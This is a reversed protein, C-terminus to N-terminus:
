PQIREPHPVWNDPLSLQPSTNNLIGSALRRAFEPIFLLGKSGFGGLVFCSPLGPVAGAVPARGPEIVGRLGSWAQVLSASRLGPLWPLLAGLLQHFVETPSPLAAPPRQYTAGLIWRGPTLPAIHGGMSLALPAPPGDPWEITALTGLTPVCGLAPFFRGLRAGLAMVLTHADLTEKPTSIEWTGQRRRIHDAPLTHIRVGQAQLSTTLHACLLPLNVNRASPLEILGDLDGLFPYRLSAAHSDSYRVEFDEELRVQHRRYSKELRSGLPGKVPRLLPLPHSIGPTQAEVQTLLERSQQWIGQLESSPNMSRGPFPHMLAGPANSGREPDPADILLLHSAPFGASLLELGLVLGSLGGGLIAISETM